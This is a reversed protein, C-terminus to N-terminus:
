LFVRVLLWTAIIVESLISYFLIAQGINTKHPSVDGERGTDFLQSCWDPGAGPLQILRFRDCCGQTRSLIVPLAKSGIDAFDLCM